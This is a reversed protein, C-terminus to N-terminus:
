LVFKMYCLKKLTGLHAYPLSGRYMMKFDKTWNPVDYRFFTERIDINSPCYISFDWLQFYTIVLRFHVLDNKLVLVQGKAKDDFLTRSWFYRLVWEKASAPDNRLPLIKPPPTELESTGFPWLALDHQSMITNLFKVMGQGELYSQVSWFQKPRTWFMKFFIWFM